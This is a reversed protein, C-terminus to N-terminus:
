ISLKPYYGYDYLDGGYDCLKGGDDTAKLFKQYEKIRKIERRCKYLGELLLDSYEHHGQLFTVNYGFDADTYYIIVKCSPSNARDIIQRLENIGLPLGAIIITDIKGQEASPGFTPTAILAEVEGSTFRALSLKRAEASMDEHVRTVFPRLGGKKYMAEAAEVTPAYILKRKKNDGLWPDIAACLRMEPGKAYGDLDWLVKIKSIKIQTLLPHHDSEIMVTDESNYAVPACCDTYTCDLMDEASFYTCQIVQKNDFIDLNVYSKSFLEHMAASAASYEDIIVHILKDPFFHLVNAGIPVFVACLGDVDSVHEADPFAKAPFGADSLRLAMDEARAYNMTYCVTVYDSSCTAALLLITDTQAGLDLRSNVLNYGNCAARLAENVPATLTINLRDAAQEKRATNLLKIM